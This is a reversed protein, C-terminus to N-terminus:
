KAPEGVTTARDAVRAPGPGFNLGFRRSIATGDRRALQNAQTQFRGRNAEIVQLKLSLRADAM